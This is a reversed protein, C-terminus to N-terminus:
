GACSKVILFLLAVVISGLVFMLVGPPEGDNYGPEPM